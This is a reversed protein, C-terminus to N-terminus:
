RPPALHSNGKVSCSEATCRGTLRLRNRAFVAYGLDFLQSIVPWRTLAVIPGLGVAAYLRRFVEVGEIWTGDPLRGHMRAMLEAYTKGVAQPDFSPDSIDTMRLRRRRDWRKLLGIERRCLPCAADYYVELVIESFQMDNSEPTRM